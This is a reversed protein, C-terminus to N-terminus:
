LNSDSGTSAKVQSVGLLLKDQVDVSFGPIQEVHAFTALVQIQVQIPLLCLAKM